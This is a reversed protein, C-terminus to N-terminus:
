KGEAKAKENLEIWAIAKDRLTRIGNMAALERFILEAAANANWEPTHKNEM